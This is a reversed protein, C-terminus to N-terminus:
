PQAPPVPTAIDLLLKWEYRGGGRLISRDVRKWVRLYSSLELKGDKEGPKKLESMGYSYGLDGSVSVSAAAPQWTIQGPTTKLVALMREKGVVPFTGVRYYRVAEDSFKTYAAVLGKSASVGSFEQDWGILAM